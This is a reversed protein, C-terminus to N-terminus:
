RCFATSARAAPLVPSAKNARLLGIIQVRAVVIETKEEGPQARAGLGDIGVENKLPQDVLVGFKALLGGLNPHAGQDRATIKIGDEFERGM